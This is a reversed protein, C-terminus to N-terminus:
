RNCNKNKKFHLEDGISIKSFFFSLFNFGTNVKRNANANSQFLHSAAKTTLLALLFCHLLYKGGEM